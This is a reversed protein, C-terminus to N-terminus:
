ALGGFEDVQRTHRRDYIVGALLFLAGTSVGHNVMQLVAGQMGTPTAGFLGLM